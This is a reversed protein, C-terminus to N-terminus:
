SALESSREEGSRCVERRGLVTYCGAWIGARESEAGRFHARIGREERNASRNREESTSIVQVRETPWDESNIKSSM